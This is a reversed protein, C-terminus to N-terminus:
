QPKNEDEKTTQENNTKTADPPPPPTEATKADEAKKLEAKIKQTLDKLNSEIISLATATKGATIKLTEMVKNFQDKM